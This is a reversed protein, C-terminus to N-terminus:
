QAQATEQFDPMGIPMGNAKKSPKGNTPDTIKAAPTITMGLRVAEQRERLSGRSESWGPLLAITDCTAMQPICVAMYAEWSDQSPNEAPNEVHYGLARLRAAEAHFAPYNFEPLGTMPGSLYIRQMTVPASTLTRLPMYITM